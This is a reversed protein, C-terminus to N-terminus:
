KGNLKALFNIIFYNNKLICLLFLRHKLPMIKIPYAEKIQRWISDTCIENVMSKKMAVSLQSSHCIICVIKRVYGIFMRNVRDTFDAPMNHYRSLLENRIDIIKTFRDSHFTHTISTQNSFYNYYTKALEVICETHTLCDLNFILDESILKKENEFRLGNLLINDRNYLVIKASMPIKREIRSSPESAIMDMAFTKIETPTDHVTFKKAQYMPTIEGKDNVRRIGSFVMQARYQQATNYMTEYMDFEIWDDSDVFAVYEGTASELGSNCAMGLGGNKKHIVKIRSDRKAWNDCMEPVRDPSEDDVLIIEIDKLTQNVISSVCRDLYKEVNYCPVVISVKPAIKDSEYINYQNQM